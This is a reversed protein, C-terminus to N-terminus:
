WGHDMHRCKMWFLLCLIGWRKEPNFEIKFSREKPPVVTFRKLAARNDRGERRVELGWMRAERAGNSWM